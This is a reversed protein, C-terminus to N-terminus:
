RHVRVSQGRLEPRGPYWLRYRYRFDRGVLVYQHADAMETTDVKVGNVYLDGTGGFQRTLRFDFKLDAQGWQDLHRM